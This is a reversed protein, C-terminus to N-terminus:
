KIDVKIPRDKKCKIPGCHHLMAKASAAASPIIIALLVTCGGAPDLGNITKRALASQGNKTKGLVTPDIAKTAIPKKYM